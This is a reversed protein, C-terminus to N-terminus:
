RLQSSCIDSKLFVGLCSDCYRKGKHPVGKEGFSRGVFFTPARTTFRCTDWVQLLLEKVQLIASSEFCPSGCRVPQSWTKRMSPYSYTHFQIFTPGNASKTYRRPQLSWSLTHGVFALAEQENGQSVKNHTDQLTAGSFKARKSALFDREELHELCDLNM